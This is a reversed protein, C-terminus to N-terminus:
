IHFRRLLEDKAETNGFIMTGLLSILSVGMAIFTPIPKTIWRELYLIGPLLSLILLQIQYLLYSQWNMFNVVMLIVIASDAVLIIAPLAYNLSWGRYGIRWDVFLLMVQLLLATIIVKAGLNVNNFICYRLTFWTFCTLGTPLISWLVRDYYFLNLAIMIACVVVSLLFFVQLIFRYARKQIRIDPYREEGLQEQKKLVNQCFPCVKTQDSIELECHKCYAM